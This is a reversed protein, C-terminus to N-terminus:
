RSFRETRWIMGMKEERTMTCPGPEYVCLQQLTLLRYATNM